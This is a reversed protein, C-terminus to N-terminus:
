KNKQGKQDSKGTAWLFCQRCYFLRPPLGKKREVIELMHKIDPSQCEDCIFYDPSTEKLMRRKVMVEIPVVDNKIMM